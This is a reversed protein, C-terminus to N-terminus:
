WRWGRSPHEHEVHAGEPEEGLLVVKPRAERRARRRGLGALGSSAVHVGSLQCGDGRRLSDVARKREEVQAAEGVEDVRLAVVAGHALQLPEARRHALHGREEAHAHLLPQAVAEHEDADVGLGQDTGREGDLLSVRPGTAELQAAADGGTLHDEELAVVVDTPADVERERRHSM